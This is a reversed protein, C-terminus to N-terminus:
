SQEPQNMNLSASKIDILKTIFSKLVIQEEETSSLLQNLAGKHAIGWNKIMWLHTETEFASGLARDLLKMYEEVGGLTKWEAVDSHFSDSERKLRNKLGFKEDFPPCESLKCSKTTLQMGHQGDPQKKFNRM